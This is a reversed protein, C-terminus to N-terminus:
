SISFSICSSLRCNAVWCDEGEAIEGETLAGGLSVALGLISFIGDRSSWHRLESCATFEKNSKRDPNSLADCSLLGFPWTRGDLRKSPM